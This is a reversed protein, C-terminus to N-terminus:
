TNECKQIHSKILSNLGYSEILLSKYPLEDEAYYVSESLTVTFTRSPDYTYYDILTQMVSENQGTCIKDYFEKACFFDQVEYVGTAYSSRNKEKVNVVIFHKVREGTEGIWIIKMLFEPKVKLVTAIDPIKMVDPLATGNEWKGVAQKSIKLREALQTQSYGLSQRKCKIYEGIRM